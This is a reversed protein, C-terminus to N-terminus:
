ALAADGVIEQRGLALAQGRQRRGHALCNGGLQRGHLGHGEPFFARDAQRETRGGVGRVGADVVDVLHGLADEHPAAPAQTRRFGGLRQFVIRFDQGFARRHVHLLGLHHARGLAVRAWAHRQFGGIRDFGAGQRGQAEALGIRRAQARDVQGAIRDIHCRGARRANRRDARGIQAILRDFARGDDQRAMGDIGVLRQDGLDLGQPAFRHRADGHAAVIRAGVVRRRRVARAVMHRDLIRGRAHQGRWADRLTEGFLVAHEVVAGPLGVAIEVAQQALAVLREVGDRHGHQLGYRAGLVVRHGIHRGRRVLDHGVQGIRHGVANQHLHHRQAAFAEVLPDLHREVVGLGPGVGGDDQDLAVGGRRGQAHGAIDDGDGHGLGAALANADARDEGLAAQVLHRQPGLHGPNSRGLGRGVHGVALVPHERRPAFHLEDVGRLLWQDRRLDVCQASGALGLVQGGRDPQGVREAGGRGATEVQLGFPGLRVVVRHIDVGFRRRGLHTEVLGDDLLCDRALVGIGVQQFGQVM